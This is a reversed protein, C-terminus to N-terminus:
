VLLERVVRVQMSGSVMTAGRAVWVLLPVLWQMSGSVMTAGRAVWVLLPVLWPVGTVLSMPSFDRGGDIVIGVLLIIEMVARAFM